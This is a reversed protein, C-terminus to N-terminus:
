LLSADAIMQRTQEATLGLAQGMALVFPHDSRFETAFEWGAKLVKDTSASVMAEVQEDLGLSILAKRIQWPSCTYVFPPAPDTSEPTNGDALWALYEVNTEPNVFAGSEIHQPWGQTLKYM